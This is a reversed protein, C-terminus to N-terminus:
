ASPGAPVMLVAKIAMSSQMLPHPIHQIYDKALSLCFNTMQKGEYM